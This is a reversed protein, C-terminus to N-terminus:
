RLLHHSGGQSCTRDRGSQAPFPLPLPQPVPCPHHAHDHRQRHQDGRRRVRVRGAEGEVVGHVHQGAPRVARDVGGAAEPVLLRQGAATQADAGIAVAHGLTPLGDGARDVGGDGVAVAAPEDAAGEVAGTAGIDAVECVEVGGAVRIGVPRRVGVARDVREREAGSREVGAAVEDVGAARRVRPDRRDIHGAAGDGGPRGAEAILHAREGEVVGPQVHAPHERLGPGLRAVVDGGHGRGGAPEVLIPEWARVVRDIREGDRTRAEVDSALEARDVAVRVVAQGREVGRGAGCAIPIRGAVQDPRQHDVSPPEIGPAVAADEGVAEGVTRPDGPGRLERGGRARDEAERDGAVREVGATLRAGGAARLEAGQGRQVEGVALARGPIRLGVPVDVRDRRRGRHDVRAPGEAAGPRREPGGGADGVQAGVTADIGAEARVGDAVGHRVHEHGARAQVRGAVERLPAVLRDGVEGLQVDIGARQIGLKSTPCSM